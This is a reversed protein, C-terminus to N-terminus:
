KGADELIQEKKRKFEAETIIGDDWLQKLARIHGIYVTEKALPSEEKFVPVRPPEFGALPDEASPAEARADDDGLIVTEENEFDSSENLIVTEENEFDSSEQLIMTEENEFDSSEQLIMTEENEFGSSEQLIMTEENEFCDFDDEDHLEITDENEFDYDDQLIMTEEDM